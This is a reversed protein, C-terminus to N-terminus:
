AVEGGGRRVLSDVGAALLIALGYFALQWFGSVGMMPLAVSVLALLTCGLAAGLVSGSGGFVNVGGIVVASIVILEFAQGTSVPNVFGVRSAFMLGAIGSLLGLITFLLLTVRAVPVGRLQAAQPNSGIAYVQRGTATYRLWLWAAVAVLAALGLMWSLGWGTPQSLALLSAPLDDVDVQKGDSYVFVLGRYATMTGLTAIIAPVRLLAVLVGNLLGLVGGVAAALGFALPLPLGPWDIFANGVMIAALALTSGVSLDINRSVIVLMMGTAATLVPPLFLLIGRVGDAGFLRPEVLGCGIFALLVFLAIGAERFRTWYQLWGCRAQEVGDGKAEVAAAMVDEQTATGRAFEGTLRGQSMVLVRDSMSLVEPLDSSIMLIGKGQGALDAMLRHVEAKAGVDIGRTPEDLILVKPEANLWKGLVVKQQNGGSLERAPQTVDRLRTKLREAWERALSRERGLRLWGGTSVGALSAMSTNAAIPMPTVLGHQQRDEPVYALGHRIAERPSRARVEDGAIRVSGKSPTTAGFVARAVETRGAGVLGAMGVIEGARVAFSVDEFEGRRCLGDVTLVAEGLTAAPKEYMEGLERGVMMRIIEERSTEGVRRTGIFDGDRLVTIKDSIEFVEPLRHSVFVVAVGEAVLGRVIGFLRDVEAPTLAATPEDMLLVRAEQSLASALEVAQQDAISLGRLKAAPDLDVGLRDLLQQAERRLRRWDIQGLRGRPLRHGLFINEAVSLDPFSLPEQHILAVGRAAAAAPTDIAVRFGDVLLEGADPRHVGALLKMLTSKGAGNEGMITHVEGSFLQLDVGELVRVGAFAKGVGRAELIPSNAQTM